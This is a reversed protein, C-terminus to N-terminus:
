NFNLMGTLLMEAVQLCQRQYQLMLKVLSLYSERRSSAVKLEVMCIRAALRSLGLMHFLM